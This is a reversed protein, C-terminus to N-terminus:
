CFSTPQKISSSSSSSSGKIHSFPALIASNTSSQSFLWTCHQHPNLDRICCPIKRGSDVKLASERVTNTCGRHAHSLMQTHTLFGCVSAAMGNNPCMSICCVSIPIPLAARTAAAGQEPLTFWIERLSCHFILFSSFFFFSFFFFLFFFFFLLFFSFFLLLFFIIQLVNYFLHTKVKHVKEIQPTVSVVRQSVHSFFSLLKVSSEFLCHEWFCHSNKQYWSFNQIFQICFSYYGVAM